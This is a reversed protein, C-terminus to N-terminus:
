AFVTCLADLITIACQQEQASSLARKNTSAAMIEIVIRKDSASRAKLVGAIRAALGRDASLSFMPISTSSAEMVGTQALNLGILFMDKSPATTMFAASVVKSQPTTALALNSIRDAISRASKSTGFVCIPTTELVSAARAYGLTRGEIIVGRKGEWAHKLRAIAAISGTDLIGSPELGSNYQFDRLARETNPGFVGDNNCAFGLSALADQLLRVDRGHFHPMHLYLARDGLALSADILATWTQQDLADNQELHVSAKFDAVAAATKEGYLGRKAEDGLDYGLLELRQQVDQVSLDSKTEGSM